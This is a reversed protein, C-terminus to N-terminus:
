KDGVVIVVMVVAVVAVEKLHEQEIYGERSSSVSILASAVLMMM